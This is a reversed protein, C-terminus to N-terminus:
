LHLEPEEWLQLLVGHASRPSIFATKPGRVSKDVIRVGDAELQAILPEIRNFHVSIHHLGEGRKDLFQAVFGTHAGDPPQILEMKYGNLWFSGVAFAGNYAMHKERRVQIPFYRAFFALTANIDHVATSLHDVRAALTEGSRLRFPVVAPRPPAEIHRVQWFQVLIGHASRPHIFATQEGDGADFRDVIRVGDREMRALLPDLADVEISLHHLGEGRKSLFRRVFSDTRTGEILELKFNGVYFDCWNFDDTYGPRKPARMETPLVRCFFPLATDIEQVAISVHDVRM